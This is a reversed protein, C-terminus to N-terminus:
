EYVIETLVIEEARSQISGMSQVCKWWNNEKLEETVGEGAKMQDILQEYRTQAQEDIDALYSEMRGSLTLETCINPHHENLYRFRMQGWKGITRKEEPADLRLDPIYYDGVLVYDLGNEKDHIRPRLNGM